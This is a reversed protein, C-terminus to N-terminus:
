DMRSIEHPPVEEATNDIVAVWGHPFVAVIKDKCYIRAVEDYSPDGSYKIRFKGGATRTMTFGEFPRWGGGHAYNKHLQNCVPDPDNEDLMGPIFGLMQYGDPRNTEVLMM